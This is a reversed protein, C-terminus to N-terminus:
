APQFDRSKGTDASGLQKALCGIHREDTGCCGGLIKMGLEHHLAAVSDGFIEPDEEVLAASGDLEEPNLAATNALLGVVRSRVLPSSNVTH